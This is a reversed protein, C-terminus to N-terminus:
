HKTKNNFQAGAKEQMIEQHIHAVAVRVYELLEVLAGESDDDSEEQPDLCSINTLDTFSEQLEPNKNHEVDIGSLKMGTIFGQAWHSLAEVRDSLPSDDDPMLIDVTLNEVTSFHRATEDFLRTLAASANKSLEDSTDVGQELLSNLWAQKRLKVGAAFLACLLGHIEAADGLSNLVELAREVSDHSPLDM